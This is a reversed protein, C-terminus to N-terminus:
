RNLRDRACTPSSFDVDATLRPIGHVTSAVSGGIAYAIGIADFAQIVERAVVEAEALM